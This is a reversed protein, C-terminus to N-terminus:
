YEDCNSTLVKYMLLNPHCHDICEVTKGSIKELSISSFLAMVGYKVLRVNTETATVGCANDSVNFMIVLFSEHINLHNEERGILINFTNKVTNMIALNNPNYKIVKSNHIDKDYMYQTDLEFDM